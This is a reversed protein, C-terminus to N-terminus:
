KLGLIEAVGRSPSRAVDRGGTGVRGERACRWSSPLAPLERLNSESMLVWQFGYLASQEFDHKKIKEVNKQWDDM